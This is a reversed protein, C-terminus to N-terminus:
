YIRRPTPDFDGHQASVQSPTYYGPGDACGSVFTALVGAAIFFLIAKM